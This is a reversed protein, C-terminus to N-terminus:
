GSQCRQCDCVDVTVLRDTLVLSNIGPHTKMGPFEPISAAIGPIRVRGPIVCLTANDTHTCCATFLHSQKDCICVESLTDTCASHRVTRRTHVWYRWLVGTNRRVGPMWAGGERQTCSHVVVVFMLTLYMVLWACEIITYMQHMRVGSAVADVFRHRWIVPWGFTFKHTSLRCTFFTTQCSPRRSFHGLFQRQRWLRGLERKLRRWLSRLSLEMRVLLLWGVDSQQQKSHQNTISSM